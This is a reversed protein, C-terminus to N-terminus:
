KKYIFYKRKQKNQQIDDFYENRSLSNINCISLNYRRNDLCTKVGTAESTLDWRWLDAACTNEEADNAPFDGTRSILRDVQHIPTYSIEINVDHWALECVAFAVVAAVSGGSFKGVCRIQM